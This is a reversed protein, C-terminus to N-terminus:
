CYLRNGMSVHSTGAYPAVNTLASIDLTIHNTAGSDPYWGQDSDPPFSPQSSPQWYSNCKRSCSRTSSGDQDQLQHCNVSMQQNLRGVAGAVLGVVVMVRHGPKYEQQYHNSTGTHTSNGDIAQKLHSALNAQFSTQEQESIPSSTAILSDCLMKVKALYDKVSLNAKKLSYLAHRMGSIKVISKVGFRREIITWVEFSTKAM